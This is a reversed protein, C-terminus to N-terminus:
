VDCCRYAIFKEMKKGCESCVLIEPIMGGAVLFEFQNCHHSDPIQLLHDKLAQLFGKQQVQVKWQDYESLCTSFLDGRAKMIEESGKSLLVWGKHGSDFSLMKLVQQMIPDSDVTQGLQMKSYLMSDLRAWFFWISTLQGQLRHSLKDEDIAELNTHVQEKPNSKGMYVMELSIGSSEAVKKATRTITKIWEIDDGGYLCITREAAIQIFGCIIPVVIIM